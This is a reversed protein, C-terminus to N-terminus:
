VAIIKSPAYRSAINLFYDTGAKLNCRNLYDTVTRFAVEPTNNNESLHGLTFLRTGGAILQEIMQACADNSLHGNPGGVRLKLNYDYPGNALMQVDYNSEILIADIGTAMSRIDDTVHGLDTMIMCSKGCADVRCCFSGKADHPTAATSVKVIGTKGTFTACEGANLVLNLSNDHPKKCSSLISYMTPESAYIPVEHKRIFVDTGRIHDSHGHTVFLASIMDPSTNVSALAEDIRKCSQGCDFLLNVGDARVLISNGSSGSFLPIMEISCM